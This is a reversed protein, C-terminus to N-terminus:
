RKSSSCARRRSTGRRRAGVSHGIGHPPEVHGHSSEGPCGCSYYRHCVYAHVLTGARVRAVGEQRTTVRDTLGIELEATLAQHALPPSCAGILKYCHFDVGPKQKLTERVHTKM